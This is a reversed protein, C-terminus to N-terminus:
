MSVDRDSGQFGTLMDHTLLRHGFRSGICLAHQFSGLKSALLKGNTVVVAETRVTQM